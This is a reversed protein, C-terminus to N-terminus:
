WMTCAEVSNYKKCLVENNEPLEPFILFTCSAMIILFLKQYFKLGLGFKSNNSEEKIKYTTNSFIAIKLKEEPYILNKM